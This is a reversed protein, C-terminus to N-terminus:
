YGVHGLYKWDVINVKNRICAERITEKHDKDGIQSIDGTYKHQLLAKSGDSVTVEYNCEGDYHPQWKTVLEKLWSIM